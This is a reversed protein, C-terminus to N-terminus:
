KEVKKVVKLASPSCSASSSEVEPEEGGVAAEMEEKIVM